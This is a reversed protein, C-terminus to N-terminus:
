FRGYLFPMDMSRTLKQISSTDIVNPQDFDVTEKMKLYALIAVMASTILDDHEGVKAQFKGGINIFFNLERIFEKSNIIMQGTELYIKLKSCALPRSKTTTAIGYRKIDDSVLRAEPIYINPGGRERLTCLFGEASSNNEVSWYIEPRRREIKILEDYMFKIIDKVLLLQNNQDQTNSSWEAIQIFGPFEFIQIAAYDGSNGMCTDVGIIYRKGAELNKYFNFNLHTFVPKKSLVSKSMEKLKMADILLNDEGMFQCNSVLVSNCYFKNGKEVNLIDYVEETRINKHINVIKSLSDNVYVEDGIKYEELPKKETKSYYINHDNTATISTNELVLMSVQKPPLKQIGDFKSWGDPTLIQIENTM